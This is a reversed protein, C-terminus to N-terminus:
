GPVWWFETYYIRAGDREMLDFYSRSSQMEKKALAFIDTDVGPSICNFLYLGHANSTSFEVVFHLKLGSNIPLQEELKRIKSTHFDCTLNYNSHADRCCGSVWCMSTILERTVNAIMLM